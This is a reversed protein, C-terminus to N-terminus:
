PIGEEALYDDLYRLRKTATDDNGFQIFEISFPRLKLDYHLAKLEHSFKRIQEAVEKKNEMGAWIGDTLILLVIDKVKALPHNEQKRLRSIYDHLINGLSSRLDTRAREKSGMKPRAANMSNRFKSASDKGDITINGTTFKLDMGDNDLGKAKQVLVDLLETAEYWNERM